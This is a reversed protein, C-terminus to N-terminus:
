QNTFKKFVIEINPNLLKKIEEDFLNCLRDAIDENSCNEEFKCFPSEFYGDLAKLGLDDSINGIRERAIVKALIM